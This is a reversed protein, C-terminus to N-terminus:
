LVRRFLIIADWNITTAALGKVRILANGGSASVVIDALAMSSDELTTNYESAIETATTGDTRFASDFYYSAGQGTSAGSKIIPTYYGTISYVASVVGLPLTIITTVTADTTTVQGTMRNTLTVTLTNATGVTKIGSESFSNNATAPMNINGGSDAVVVIGEDPTISIIDIEGPTNSDGRLFANSM